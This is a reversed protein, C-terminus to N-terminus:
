VEHEKITQQVYKIRIQVHTWSGREISNHAKM